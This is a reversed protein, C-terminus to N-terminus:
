EFPEIKGAYEGQRWKERNNRVFIKYLQGQIGPLKLTV